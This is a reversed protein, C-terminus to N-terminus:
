LLATNEAEDDDDLDDDDLDDWLDMLTSAARGDAGRADAVAADEVDEAHLDSMVQQLSASRSGASGSADINLLSASPTAATSTSARPSSCPASAGSPGAVALQEADGDDDKFLSVCILRSPVDRPSPRNGLLQAMLM